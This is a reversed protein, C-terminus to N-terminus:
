SEVQARGAAVQRAREEPDLAQWAAEVERMGSEALERFAPVEALDRLDMRGDLVAQVDRRVDAWAPDSLQDRLAALSERLLAAARPDDDVFADVSDRQPRSVVPGPQLPRPHVPGLRRRVRPVAPGLLGALLGPDLERRSVAGALAELLGTAVWTSLRESGSAM